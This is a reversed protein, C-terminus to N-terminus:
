TTESAFLAENDFDLVLAELPAEDRLQRLYRTRVLLPEARRVDAAWTQPAFRPLAESLAEMERFGQFMEARLEEFM